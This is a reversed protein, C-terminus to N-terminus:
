LVEALIFISGCILIVDKEEAKNKAASYAEAVSEYADGKLGYPESEEKLSEANKGRPIDAKAFYYIAEKPFYPLSKDLEKDEVVGFVIHLNQKLIGKMQEFLLKFAGPNHASEGITLPSKNIIHWRGIYNTKAKFNSLAKIISAGSVRNEKEVLNWVRVTDLTTILNKLLMEGKLDLWLDKLVMQEKYFVDLLYQDITEDKVQHFFDDEAFSIMANQESAKKLFVPDSLKGREGIVVPINKKIIGAKEFAIKEITDGLMQTHDLSINTITSLVPTVINTSDLRGGLGTEIIALDVQENAFHEFAMAVTIEFFSPKINEFHSKNEKVFAVVKEEPIYEGNIKIRERFDKYHPSTYLGTKFGHTQFISALLHATTGKGNTGAIHICKFKTHPNDLAESLKIINGLDKKFAVKGQRQYMPLSSYLYQLTEKYIM